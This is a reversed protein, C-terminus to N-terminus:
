AAENAKEEMLNDIYLGLEYLTPFEFVDGPNLIIGKKKLQIIMQVVLLSHGGIEFFNNRRGISDLKLLDKWLKSLIEETPTKPLESSISVLDERQPEPLNKKDVKGNALLPFSELTVYALPLMYEPLEQKLFAQLEPYLKDAKIDFNKIIYAVLIPQQDHVFAHVIAQKIVPHKRLCNEIEGLEIRNGRIKIQEDLRGLFDINGDSLVRALDGTKYLRANKVKHPLFPDSIFRSQTLEPLNLYGRAIGTGGICLEGQNGNPVVKMEEDLIYISKNAIPQGIPVRLNNEPFICKYSTARVTAETPGYDNYLDIGPLANLVYRSTKVQLAEGGSFIRKISCCSQFEPLTVLIDLLSPVFRLNQIKHNQIIAILQHLDRHINPPAIVTTGGFLLPWFIEEV